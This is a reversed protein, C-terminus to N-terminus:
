QQGGGARGTAIDKTAKEIKVQRQALSRLEDQV